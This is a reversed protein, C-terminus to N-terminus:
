REGPLDEDQDDEDDADDEDVPPISSIGLSYRRQAHEDSM